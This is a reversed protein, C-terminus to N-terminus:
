ARFLFQPLVADSEAQLFVEDQRCRFRRNGAHQPKPPTEQREARNGCEADAAQKREQAATRVKQERCQRQGM